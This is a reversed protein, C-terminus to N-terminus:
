NLDSFHSLILFIIIRILRPHTKKAQKLAILYKTRSEQRDSSYPKATLVQHRPIYVHELQYCVEETILLGLHHTSESM